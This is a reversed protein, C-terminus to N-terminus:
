KYDTSTKLTYCSMNLYAATRRCHPMPVRDQICHCHCDIFKNCLFYGWLHLTPPVITNNILLLALFIGGWVFHSPPPPSPICCQETGQTRGQHTRTLTMDFIERGACFQICSLSFLLSLPCPRGHTCKRPPYQHHTHRNTGLFLHQYYYFFLVFFFMGCSLLHQYRKLQKGRQVMGRTEGDTIIKKRQEKKTMMTGNCREMKGKFKWKNWMCLMATWVHGWACDHQEYVAEDATRNNVCLRMCLRICLWM